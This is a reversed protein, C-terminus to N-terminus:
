DGKPLYRGLLFSRGATQTDGGAAASPAGAMATERPATTTAAGAPATAKLDSVYGDFAEDEMAVIREVRAEDTLFEEGLHAAVEKVKAVREGKKKAKAEAKAQADKFDALEQEAKEKAQEAAVKASEAVDLKNQLESKETELAKRAQTLSATEAAVRDTLIAIHETETFTKEDAV